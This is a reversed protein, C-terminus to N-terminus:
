FTCSFIFYRKFAYFLYNISKRWRKDKQLLRSKFYDSLSVTEPRESNYANTGDPFLGPFALTEAHPDMFLPIPVEDEGPAVAVRTKGIRGKRGLGSRRIRGPRILSTEDDRRSVKKLPSRTSEEASFDSGGDEAPDVDENDDDSEPDQDVNPPSPARIRQRSIRLCREGDALDLQPGDVRNVLVDHIPNAETESDSDSGEMVELPEELEGVAGVDGGIAEGVFDSGEMMELPEELAGDAGVGVDAGVAGGVDGSTQCLTSFM